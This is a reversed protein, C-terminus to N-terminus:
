SASARAGEVMMADFRLRDLRWGNGRTGFSELFAGGLFVPWCGPAQLLSAAGPSLVEGTGWRKGTGSDFIAFAAGLM